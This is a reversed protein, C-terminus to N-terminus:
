QALDADAHAAAPLKDFLLPERLWYKPRQSAGDTRVVGLKVLRDILRRAKAKSSRCVRVVAPHTEIERATAPGIQGIIKAIEDIAGQLISM